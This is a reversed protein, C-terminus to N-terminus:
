TTRTTVTSGNVSDDARSDAHYLYIDYDVGGITRREAPELFNTIDISSTDWHTPQALSTPVAWYPIYENGDAPM